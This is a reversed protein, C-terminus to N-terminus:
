GEIGIWLVSLEYGLAGAVLDYYFFHKYDNESINGCDIYVVFHSM